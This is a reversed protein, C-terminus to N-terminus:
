QSALSQRSENEGLVPLHNPYTILSGTSHHPYIKSQEVKIFLIITTAVFGSIVLIYSFNLPSDGPRATGEAFTRFSGAFMM